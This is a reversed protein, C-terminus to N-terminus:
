PTRSVEIWVYGIRDGPGYGNARDMPYRELLKARVEPSLARAAGHCQLCSNRAIMPKLLGVRDGLDFIRTEDVSPAADRVSPAAWPPPADVPNRLRASTFGVEVGHARGVARRLETLSEHRADIMKALHASSAREARERDIGDQEHDIIEQLAGLAENGRKVARSLAPPEEGALYSRRAEHVCSMLVFVATGAALARVHGSGEERRM